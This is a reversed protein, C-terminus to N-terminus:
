IIGKAQLCIEFSFLQLVCLPYPVQHIISFSACFMGSFPIPYALWSQTQPPTLLPSFYLFLFLLMLVLCSCRYTARDPAGVHPMRLDPWHIGRVQNASIAISGAQDLPQNKWMWLESIKLTDECHRFLLKSFSEGTLCAKMHSFPLWLTSDSLSFFFLGKERTVLLCGRHPNFPHSLIGGMIEFCSSPCFSLVWRARGWPLSLPMGTKYPIDVYYTHICISWQRYAGIGSGPKLIWLSNTSHIWRQMGSSALVLKEM